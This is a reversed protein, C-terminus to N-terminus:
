GATSDDGDHKQFADFMRDEASGLADFDSNMDGAIDAKAADQLEMNYLGYQRGRMGLPPGQAEVEDVM